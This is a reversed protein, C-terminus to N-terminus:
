CWWSTPWCTCPGAHGGRRHSAALWSWWGRKRTGTWSAISGTALSSATCPQTWGKKWLRRASGICPPCVPRSRRPSTATRGTPGKRGPTPKSYSAPELWSRRLANALSGAVFTREFLLVLLPASVMVEKSAMGAACSFMALLCWTIRRWRNSYAGTPLSQAAWYRLGCDLTALYFFAMMLETRQTAYIVAETALPHLAWLLAVALALWGASTDCQGRFYPLRLTRRVIAFVLWASLCHLVVNFGHYGTPDLEGFYYNIALSLNVLPRSATPVDQASNLPGPREATGLLPWLSVISKNNIIASNDDFIFPADLARGYVAGICVAIAAAAAWAPPGGRAGCPTQRHTDDGRSSSNLQFQNSSEPM